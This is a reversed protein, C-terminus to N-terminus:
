HVGTGDFLLESIATDQYKKGPYVEIIEFRLVVEQGAKLSIFPFSASQPHKDDALKFIRTPVGNVYM